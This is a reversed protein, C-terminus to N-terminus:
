EHAPYLPYFDETMKAERAFDDGFREIAGGWVVDPYSMIQQTLISIHRFTILDLAQELPLWKIEAIGDPLKEHGGQLRAVYFNRISLGEKGETTLTFSGRLEPSTLQLGHNELLAKFGQRVNQSDDQYWGPTVWFDRDKIKVLMLEQKDNFLLIRNFISVNEAAEVSAAGAFMMVISVMFARM